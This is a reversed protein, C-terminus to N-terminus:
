LQRGNQFKVNEDTAARVYIVSLLIGHRSGEAIDVIRWEFM